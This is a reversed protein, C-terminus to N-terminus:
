PIFPSAARDPDGRGAPWDIPLVLRCRPFGWTPFYVHQAIPVRGGAVFIVIDGPERVVPIPAGSAQAAEVWEPLGHDPAIHRRVWMREWTAHPIRGAEHLYSAVDSKTWGRAAV